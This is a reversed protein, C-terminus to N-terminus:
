REDREAQQATRLALAALTSGVGDLVAAHALLRLVSVIKAEPVNADRMVRRAERVDELSYGMEQAFRRVATDDM